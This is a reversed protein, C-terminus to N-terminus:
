HYRCLSCARLMSQNTLMSALGGLIYGFMVIDWLMCVISFWNEGELLPHIDGYRISSYILCITFRIHSVNTYKDIAYRTCTCISTRIPVMYMYMYEDQNTGKVHVHVRGSQYRKCTCTSMRIPVKQMYM